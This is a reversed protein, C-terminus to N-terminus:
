SWRGSPRTAPTSSRTSSSSCGTPRTRPASTTSTCCTSRAHAARPLRRMGPRADDISERILSLLRPLSYIAVSRGADLAAKSVLMALTTKGTGVDGMSGCAGARTSTREIERVYRRVIQVQEPAVRAIESCRRATSPSAATAARARARRPQRARGRRHPAARCGCDRATNTTRTWRRLRQRRVHGASVGDAASRRHRAGASMRRYREGAYNM